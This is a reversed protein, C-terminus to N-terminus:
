SGARKLRDFENEIQRKQWPTEELFVFAELYNWLVFVSWAGLPYVFWPVPDAEAGTGAWVAILGANVALYLALHRYFGKKKDPKKEDEIQKKKAGAKEPFMFAMVFHFLLGVGWPVTAWIFWPHDIDTSFAWALALTANVVAYIVLHQWFGMKDRFRKRALKRLEDDSVANSM